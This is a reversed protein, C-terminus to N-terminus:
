MAPTAVSYTSVKTAIRRFRRERGTSYEPIIEFVGLFRYLTRNLEDKSHAMVIRKDWNENYEKIVTNKNVEYIAKGDSSLSNDWNKQNYLKPFWVM